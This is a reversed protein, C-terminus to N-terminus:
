TTKGAGRDGSLILSGNERRSIFDKIRGYASGKIYVSNNPDSDIYIDRWRIIRDWNKILDLKTNAM